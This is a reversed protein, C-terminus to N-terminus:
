NTNFTIGNYYEEVQGAFTIYWQFHHQHIRAPGYANMCAKTTSTQWGGTNYRVRGDPMFTLIDTDHLCIVIDEGSRRATTNNALKRQNFNHGQLM